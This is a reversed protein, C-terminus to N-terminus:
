KIPAGVEVTAAAPTRRLASWRVNVVAIGTFILAAGVLMIASAQESLILAGLIVGIPPVIYTVMSARFAGLEQVIFYFFLYAIFTNVVGLGLVAYLSDRPVDLPNVPGRGGLLPELLMMLGACITASIFTAAAIVTPDIRGRLAQKSYVTFYAYCLSAGMIAFQGLLMPTNLQGGEFSDSSLALVGLFGLALGIVKRPTIREDALMFHAIVLTFLSATAQLVAAMGSSIEQEGLGLLTYPLASNGFGILALARITARDRPLRKGTLALVLNLGVAAILCRTFSVQTPSFEEVGVRILLFSSGWIAGVLWFAGWARANFTTEAV